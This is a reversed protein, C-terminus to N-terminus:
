LYYNFFTYFSTVKRKIYIYLIYINLIIYAYTVHYIFKSHM